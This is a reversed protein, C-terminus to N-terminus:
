KKKKCVYVNDAVYFHEKRKQLKVSYKFILIILYSSSSFFLQIKRLKDNIKLCNARTITIISM